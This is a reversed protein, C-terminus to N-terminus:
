INANMQAAATKPQLYGSASKLMFSEAPLMVVEEGQLEFVAPLDDIHTLVFDLDHLQGSRRLYAVSNSVLFSEVPVNRWRKVIEATQENVASYGADILGGAIWACCLQDEERFEGRTGAGIVAVKAHNQILHEIQASYNRLCAVYCAVSGKAGSIIKTGSTSLLVMPRDVETNEAVQPPSNPIHFGAPMDGGLEGVMLPNELRAALSLAARLTAVPYCKRGTAAATVATTTARIVDIAVITYGEDRYRGVNEPFCDIVVTKEAQPNM